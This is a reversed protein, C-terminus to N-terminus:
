KSESLYLSVRSQIINAVEDASKQGAYFAGVEESIIDLIKNDVPSIEKVSMIFDSFYEAEEKSLAKREM